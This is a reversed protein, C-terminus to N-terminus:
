IGPSATSMRKTSTRSSRSAAPWTATSRRTGVSLESKDGTALPLWGFKDWVAMVTLGRVRAQVNEEAVGRETGAFAEALAASTAEVVPDIPIELFRAGLSDAVARADARTEVSSFQSPMSVCVVHEPGLAEAALTATLASDIGGSIGLM